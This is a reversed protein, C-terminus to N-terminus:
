NDNWISLNNGDFVQWVLKDKIFDRGEILSSWAWSTKSGKAKLMTKNHFYLGKLMRIWLANSETIM